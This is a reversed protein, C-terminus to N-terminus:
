VCVCMCVRVYVCMCTLENGKDKGREWECEWGREREPALAVLAELSASCVERFCLDREGEEPGEGRDRQIILMM